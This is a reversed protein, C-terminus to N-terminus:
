ASPRESLQLVVARRPVAVGRLLLEILRGTGVDDVTVVICRIGEDVEVTRASPVWLGLRAAPLFRELDQPRYQGHCQRAPELAPEPWRLLIPAPPLAVPRPAQASGPVTILTLGTLALSSLRLPLM